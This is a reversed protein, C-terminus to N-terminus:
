GVWRGIKNFIQTTTAQQIHGYTYYRPLQAKKRTGTWSTDPYNHKRERVQAHIDPDNKRERAKAGPIQTTTSEKV